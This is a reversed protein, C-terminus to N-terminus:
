ERDLLTGRNLFRRELQRLLHDLPLYRILPFLSSQSRSTGNECEFAAVSFVGLVVALYCPEWDDCLIRIEGKM